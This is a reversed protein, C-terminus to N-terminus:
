PAPETPSPINLLATAVARRAEDYSELLVVRLPALAPSPFDASMLVNELTAAAAALEVAGVNAAASRLAHVCKRETDRESQSIRWTTDWNGFHVHFIALARWWLEANNLMRGIAAEVNFGPL